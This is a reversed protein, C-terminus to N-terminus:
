KPLPYHFPFCEVVDKAEKLGCGTAERVYKIATIKEGRGVAAFAESLAKLLSVTGWVREVVQESSRVQTPVTRMAAVAGENRASAIEDLVARMIVNVEYESIDVKM